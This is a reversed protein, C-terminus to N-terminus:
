TNLTSERKVKHGMVLDVIHQLWRIGELRPKPFAEYSFSIIM